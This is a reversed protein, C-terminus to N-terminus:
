TKQDTQKWEHNEKTHVHKRARLTVQPRQRKRAKWASCSPQSQQTGPQYIFLHLVRDLKSTPNIDDGPKGAEISVPPCVQQAPRQCLPAPTATDSTWAHSRSSLSLRSSRAKKFPGVAGLSPHIWRQNLNISAYPTAFVNTYDVLFM